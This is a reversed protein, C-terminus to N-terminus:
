VVSHHLNNYILLKPIMLDIFQLSGHEDKAVKNISLSRFIENVKRGCNFANAHREDPHIIALWGNPNGIRLNPLV